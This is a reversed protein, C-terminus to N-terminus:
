EGCAVPVPFGSGLFIDFGTELEDFGTAGRGLPSASTGLLVVEFNCARSGVTLLLLAVASRASNKRESGPPPWDSSGGCDVRVGEPACNAVRDLPRPFPLILSATLEPLETALVCSLKAGDFIVWDEAFELVPRRLLRPVRLSSESPGTRM